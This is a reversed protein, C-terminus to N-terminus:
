CKAKHASLSLTLFPLCLFYPCLSLIEIEFIGFNWILTSTLGNVLFSILCSTRFANLFLSICTIKIYTKVYSALFVNNCM